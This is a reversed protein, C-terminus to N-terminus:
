RKNLAKLRELLKRSSAAAAKSDHIRHELDIVAQQQRENLAALGDEPRPVTVPRHRCRLEFSHAKDSCAESVWDAIALAELDNEAPFDYRGYLKGREDYLFVQYIAM